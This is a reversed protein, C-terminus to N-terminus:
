EDPNIGTCKKFKEASFNPLSRIIKKPEEGLENWWKQRDEDTLKVEKFFGGTIECEPHAEKEDKTMRAFKIWYTRSIPCQLMWYHAESSLWDDITWNSEEDFIKIKPNNM